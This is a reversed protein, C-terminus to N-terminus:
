PVLGPHTFVFDRDTVLDTHCNVCARDFNPNSDRVLDSTTWVGYAWGGDVGYDEGRKEMLTLAQFAGPAIMEDSDPNEGFAWVYHALQTGTPWINEVGARAARVATENGVIVRLTSNDGRSAVGVVGWTLIDDPLSVDSLAPLATLVSRRSPLAGPRTFVYDNDAVRDTHCNVCARDFNPDAMPLLNSTAWVAYAWGGDAEYADSDKVMLTLAQFDGAGTTFAARPNTEDAWVYHAIMTGDPWPNTDGARAATVAVDNGVIVRITNNVADDIRDAVGIVAWTEFGEPLEVGNPSPGRSVPQTMMPEDGDDEVPPDEDQVPPLMDGDDPLNTDIETAPPDDDQGCSSFLASAAVALVSGCFFGLPRRSTLEFRRLAFHRMIM